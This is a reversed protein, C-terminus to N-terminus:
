FYSKIGSSSFSKSKNCSSKCNLSDRRGIIYSGVLVSGIEAAIGLSDACSVTELIIYFNFLKCKMSINEVGV